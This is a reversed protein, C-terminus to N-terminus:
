RESGSHVFSSHFSCQGSITRLITGTGVWTPHHKRVKNTTHPNIESGGDIARLLLQISSNGTCRRTQIIIIDSRHMVYKPKPSEVEIQLM